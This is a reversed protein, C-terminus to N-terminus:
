VVAHTGDASVFNEDFVGAVVAVDPIGGVGFDLLEEAEGGQADLVELAIAAELVDTDKFIMSFAGALFEEMGGRLQGGGGENRAADEVLEAGAAVVELAFLATDEAVDDGLFFTLVHADDFHAAVVDGEAGVRGADGIFGPDERAGM